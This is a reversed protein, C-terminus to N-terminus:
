SNKKWMEIAQLAMRKPDKELTNKILKHSEKQLTETKKNKIDKVQIINLAKVRLSGPYGHTTYWPFKRRCDLFVLPLIPLGHELALKFAGKKFPNLLITEDIYEKEPFICISYGKEILNQARQYVGYRSQSSTRDVMIAARKYIYGFFPIRALEKKGVFVFPKKWLRFMLMIDMYSSHNAIIVISREESPFLNTKIMWFGSGFLVIPSWINRAVWFLYRYGNPLVTILALPFFLFLVPTASLIYFWIRWLVLFVKRV